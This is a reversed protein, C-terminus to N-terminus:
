RGGITFGVTLFFNLFNTKHLLQPEFGGGIGGSNRGTTFPASQVSTAGNPLFALSGPTVYSPHLLSMEEQTLYAGTFDIFWDRTRYGVGFSIMTRTREVPRTQYTGTAANYTSLDALEARYTYIGDPNPGTEGSALSTSNLAYGARVFVRNTPRFEAGFRYNIASVFGRPLERNLLRFYEASNDAGGRFSGSSYDVYEVDASILGRKGIIFAVGGNARWPTVNDYDFSGAQLNGGNPERVNADDVMYLEPGYALTLSAYTPTQISAGIRFFDLPQWLLGLRANVGVGTITTVDTFDMRQIHTYGGPTLGSYLNNVDREILTVESRYNYDMIGIGLGLFFNDGFNLAGAITWQNVRGREAITFEQQLGASDAIPLYFNPASRLQGPGTNNPNFLTDIYYSRFAAFQYAGLGDPGSGNAQGALADGFTNFPNIARGEYTRWFNNQQNFGIAITYSKLGSTNQSGLDRARYIPNTFVIGLQGFGFNTRSAQASTGIFDTTSTGIRLSPTFTVEGRRYLGLGAPNLTAASFDGGLATMAGGLGLGRATGAPNTEAFRLYDALDQAQARPAAGALLVALLPVALSRLNM